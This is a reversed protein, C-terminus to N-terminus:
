DNDPVDLTKRLKLIMPLVLKDDMKTDSRMVLDEIKDFLADLLSVINDRTIFRRVLDLVVKEGLQEILGQLMGGIKDKISM